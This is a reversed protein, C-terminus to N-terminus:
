VDAAEWVSLYRPYFHGTDIVADGGISRARVFFYLSFFNCEPISLSLDLITRTSIHAYNVNTQGELNEISSFKVPKYNSPLCAAYYDIWGCDGVDVLLKGVLKRGPFKEINVGAAWCTGLMDPTITKSSWMESMLHRCAITGYLLATDWSLDLLLDEDVPKDATFTNAHWVSLGGARTARAFANAM